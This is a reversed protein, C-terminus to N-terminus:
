KLIDGLTSRFTVHANRKIVVKKAKHDYSWDAGTVTLDTRELRVTDSGTALLKQPFFAASPAALMAEIQEDALGTFLTLDMEILDIRAPDPLRAEEARIMVHRFGEDTFTPLSFKKVPATATVQPAACAVGPALLLISLHFFRRM